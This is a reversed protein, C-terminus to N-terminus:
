RPASARPVAAPSLGARALRAQRQALQHLEAELTRPTLDINPECAPVGARFVCRGDLLAVLIAELAPLGREAGFAAAVIRGQDFSLAGTWHDHTIYLCGRLPLGTLVRLILPLDRGATSVSLQTM